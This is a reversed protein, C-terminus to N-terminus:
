IDKILLKRGKMKKLCLRESFNSCMLNALSIQQGAFGMLRGIEVEPDYTLAAMGPQTPAISGFEFEGVRVVIM